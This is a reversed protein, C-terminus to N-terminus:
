GSRLGWRPYLWACAVAPPVHLGGLGAALAWTAEPFRPSGPLLADPVWSVVLAVAALRRYVRAPEAAWRAVLAFAVAAATVGVTTWFVVAQRTFPLFTEPVALWRALASRLLENVVVSGVLAVFWARVLGGASLSHPVRM